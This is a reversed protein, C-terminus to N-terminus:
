SELFCLATACYGTQYKKISLQDSLASVMWMFHACQVADKQLLQLELDADPFAILRYVKPPCGWHATCHPHQVTPRGLSCPHLWTPASKLSSDAAVFAMPSAAPVPGGRRGSSSLRKGPLALSPIVCGSKDCLKPPASCEHLEVATM